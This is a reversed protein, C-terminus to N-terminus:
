DRERRLFDQFQRYRFRLKVDGGLDGESTATASDWAGQLFVNERLKIEATANSEPTTGVSTSFTVSFRDGFTKGVIFKSEFSKSSSSFVPEIAFRDLGIIGRIGEEVKGKYPDLAISAATGAGVPGEVGALAETTVGLSLLSVIDNNSLPPDSSLEVEYKDLTGTVSVAITFIGKTTEARADIRPNNRRPDQFDVVLRQLEYRNGRFTMVGQIVDFSGLIVVRSTDGVVKFEGKAWADAINNRVRITGDAIGDIDLRVRFGDEQRRPRIESIRSYFDVLAKEARITRNYLASQVEVDGTVLLDRPPGLIEVHGQVVPRLEDPYPYRIDFFDISFYVRQGRSFSLPLEGWGDLYGGGSRGAIQEFLIKERSVVADATVEEFLQAYGRFAILGNELRATGVVVPDDWKGSLRLDATITGDLREFADTVLHLAAAPVKGSLRLDLEGQWDMRGSLRLPNGGAKVTGGALSIGQPGASATLDDGSLDIGSGGYRFRHIRLSGVTRDLALASGAVEMQGMVHFHEKDGSDSGPGATGISFPGDIRFGFPQRLGVSYTLRTDPRLTRIQGALVQGEQRGTIRWEEFSVGKVSPSSVTATFRLGSVADPFAHNKRLLDAARMTGEADIRWVGEAPTDERGAAALLFAAPVGEASVAVAAPWGPERRLTADVRMTPSASSLTVKGASAGLVGDASVDEWVLRGATLRPIAARAKTVEWGNPGFTAAVDLAATGRVSPGNGSSLLSAAQTIDIRDIVGQLEGTGNRGAGSLRFAGGELEGASRVAWEDGGRGGSWNGELRVSRVSVGERRMEACEFIGSVSVTDPGAALKVDATGTGALGELHRATSLSGRGISSLVAPVWRRLASLDIDRAAVTAELLVPAPSMPGTVTGSATAKLGDAPVDAVFHVVDSLGGELRAMLPVPPLNRVTLSKTEVRAAIRPRTTEGSVEWSGSLTKWSIPYTWGYLSAQGSPLVLTGAFRLTRAPLLIGGSGAIRGQGVDMEFNSVAVERGAVYQAELRGALPLRIRFAEGEGGTGPRVLGEPITWTAVGRLRTPSGSVSLTADGAGAPRWAPGGDTGFINGLAGAADGLAARRLNLTGEVHGEDLDCSGSGSLTGGWLKGRIRELRIRRDSLAMALEVEVPLDGALRGDRVALKGSGSPNELTGDITASFDARGAPVRSSLWDGGPAGSAIWRDLDANGSVSLSGSRSSPEILGSASLSAASGSAKLRRIRATGGSLFLDAEASPFPWRARAGGPLVLDGEAKEVAVKVETGLFRVDRIRARPVFAEWRVIPGLPGIRVSGKIFHIDPPLPGGGGDRKPSTLREFLPMNAEDASFTFNRIRIRSVPQGGTLLHRLSLSADVDEAALLPRGAAVDDIRVDELSIHPYLLRIKLSGYSIRFGHRAAEAKLMEEAQRLRGPLSRVIWAGGAALLVLVVVIAWALWTRRKTM